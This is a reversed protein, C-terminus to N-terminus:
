KVGYSELKHRLTNRGIKLLRATQRKNGGTQKYIKLMHRKEMEALSLVGDPCESSTSKRGPKRDRLFAPLSERRLPKGRALNASAQVISKLERINGPFDYNMLVELADAQMGGRAQPPSLEALFRNVLLPIDDCRQRLPPLHLWAGRLRYYLDKRFTGKLMAEDIDQNTAAIFRIDV